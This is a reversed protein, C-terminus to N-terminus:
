PANISLVPHLEFGNKAAGRANHIYDWFGVGIVTVIAGPSLRAICDRAQGFQEAYKAPVCRPVPIEAVMTVAEHEPDALILHLDGDSESKVAILKAKIRYVRFEEPSIRSDEPYPIEHFPQAVLAAIRTDIPKFDIRAADKDDLIKVAWRDFGCQHPKVQGLANTISFLLAIAAMSSAISEM